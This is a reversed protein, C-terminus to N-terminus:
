ISYKRADNSGDYYFFESTGSADVISGPTDSYGAKDSGADFFMGANAVSVLALLVLLLNVRKM